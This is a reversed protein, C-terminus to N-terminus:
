KKRFLNHDCHACHVNDQPPRFCIVIPVMSPHPKLSSGEMVTISMSVTNKKGSKNHTFIIYAKYLVSWMRRTSLYKAHGEWSGGGVGHAM